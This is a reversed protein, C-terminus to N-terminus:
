DGSGFGLFDLFVNRRRKRKKREDDDNAPGANAASTAAQGLGALGATAGAAPAEARTGAYGGGVAINDAGVVRAAAITINGASSIGAEGANVEGRPAFLSVASGADLTAIGSGSFSGSTDLVLNGDADLRLVPAPAGSVTKAGRGADVNGDSAWLLIDGRGLTFVRSQNVEFNDRVAAFIDGGAVTVVGLEGAKKVVAGPVVEGANIGGTPALLAIGAAQGTRVQSTPMLIDGSDTRGGDGRFRTPFLADLSVYALSNAADFAEGAALASANGASQLDRQLVRSLWPLQRELPLAAFLAAADAPTAAIQTSRALYAVLGVTNDRVALEAASLTAPPAGAATLLEAQRGAFALQEAAPRAAHASALVVGVAREQLPATLSALTAEANGADLTAALVARLWVALEVRGRVRSERLLALAVAPQGAVPTALVRQVDAATAPDALLAPAGAVISRQAKAPTMGLALTTRLYNALMPTWAEGLLSAVARLKEATPLADFAAAASVSQSDETGKLWAYLVGPRDLLGIAGTVAYGGAVATAIDSGDLRVGAALTLQAGGEPLLTSNRQNGIANVGASAGLDIDRGALLVLDGPGAITIGNLGGGSRAASIDRGARLLSLESVAAPERGDLRQPQQQVFVNGQGDLVIDRGATLRLPRASDLSGTLLLDGDRASILVPERSSGDLQRTGGVDVSTAALLQQEVVAIASDAAPARAAGGALVALNGLTVDAAALVQLRGAAGPQQVVGSGLTVSGQPAAILAVGPLSNGLQAWSGDRLENSSNIQGLAQSYVSAATSGMRLSADADLGALVIAGSLNTLSPATQGASRLRSLMLEGRAQLDVATNQYIVEPALAGSAQDIGASGIRGGAAVQLAAGGGFLSGGLVDRGAAVDLVGGGYVQTSGTSGAGALPMWGSTAAAANLDVVDLGARVSVGGGGFSAVGGSFRDYRSWWLAAPPNSGRWWWDTVLYPNVADPAAGLVNGGAQLTVTGGGQLYPSMYGLDNFAPVFEFALSSFLLDPAGAPLTTVPLGTTYVASLAGALVVDGQAHLGIRGATNRVIVPLTPDSAKGVTLTGGTAAPQLTAGADAAALDAGAVLRISGASGAAPTWLRPDASTDGFPAEFGSSISGSVQLNGAARLVLSAGGAAAPGTAGGEAAPLAWPVSVELARSSRVEVGPRLVFATGGAVAGAASSGAPALSALLAVATDNRTYAAVDAAITATGLVTFDNTPPPPPNPTSDGGDRIEDVGDYRTVAEIDIRGVGQLTAALPTVRVGTGDESRGARLELTGEHAAATPALNLRAGRELTITGAVSNLSIRSDGDARTATLVAGPRLTLNQGADLEIVANGGSAKISGDILLSGADASLRVTEAQLSAGGPLLLEGSRARVEVLGGFNKGGAGLTGALTALDTATGSDISLEGGRGGTASGRLTGAVVVAGAPAQLTLRGASGTGAGSVDLTAGREVNLSGGASALLAQGAPLNIDVGDIRQTSGRTSTLSGAALRLDGEARLQLAGGPLEILGGQLLTRGQLSLAGGVPAVGLAPVASGAPAAGLVLDGDARLSGSSLAAAEFRAARLTADGALQLIGTGSARLAGTSELTVSATGAVAVAGAGLTLTGAGDKGGTASLTLHGQGPLAAASTTTGSSNQLTFQRASVRAEAPANLLPSDLTLRGLQASGLTAGAGFDISSDSRLAVESAAALVTALDGSIRLAQSDAASSGPVQIRSAGLAVAGARSVLVGDGFLNSASADLTLRGGAADLRAGDGVRLDGTRVSTGPAGRSVSAGLDSSLRLVAADGDVRLAGTVGSDGAAAPRASLTAGGELTVGSTGALVLDAAQLAPQGGTVTVQTARVDLTGAASGPVAGLVLTTAGLANLAEAGLTLAGAVPSSGVVIKGAAVYALGGRAGPTDLDFRVSGDLTAGTATLVLAGADAPLRPVSEGNRLPERSYFDSASTLRIESSRRAVASPTLRWNSPMTALPTSGLTGSTAGVTVSGDARALAVGPALSAMSGAAEPRVLFAGPLLAYRAPLLTYTGAPLPAGTGITIQRGLAAASGALGNDYSALGTQGPVIAFAGDSGDFVDRSGGPGPVFLSSFSDGGGSMDLLAGAAVDVQAADLTVAKAPLRPGSANSDPVLLGAGSVSTESGPALTLRDSALLTIRGLPARLVGGQEITAARLTLEGGVSLPRAASADGALMDIRHGSADLTYRAGTAPAVQAAGITVDAATRLSGTRDQSGLLQLTGATSLTLEGVGQTVLAGDLQLGGTAQLLLQGSGGEPLPPPRSENQSAVPGRTNAWQLVASSLQVSAGPALALAPTDIALTLAPALVVGDEFRIREQSVLAVNAAGSQGILAASIGAQGSYPNDSRLSAATLGASGTAPDATVQLERLAPLTLGSANDAVSNLGISLSGGAAQASGSRGAIAGGELAISGELVIDRNGRIDVKGGASAVATLATVSGGATLRTVSLTDASGGALIRAGQQMLLTTPVAASANLTVTGGNYLTGLRQGGSGPQLLTSGAVDILSGAGLWLLHPTLFDGGDASSRTLRLSVEGGSARLTGDVELSTAASLQLKAGPRLDIVAGSGVTLAGEPRSGGLGSSALSLNVARPPALTPVGLVALPAVASGSAAFQLSRDATWTAVTPALRLGTAVDLASRGDLTFSAFGGQDFFASSLTLDAPPAAPDFPADDLRVTGTALSLSGGGALSYGALAGGLALRPQSGDALPVNSGAELKIAGAATGTITGSVAGTVGVLAGASVDILSGEGLTLNRRAALSVSGGVTAARGRPGDIAENALRGTVDITVGGAVGLDGGLARGVVSGAHAIIDADILVQGFRSLLQVSGTDPLTLSTGAVLQVDADSAVSLRGIGNGQQWNLRSTAPLVGLLSGALGGTLGGDAVNWFAEGLTDFGSGILLSDRLVAGAYRNSGFPGVHTAAGLNLSGLAPLAEAGSLQRAGPTAAAAIHGDLLMKPAVVTLSGAGRGDVYGAASVTPSSSGYVPLAGWRDFLTAANDADIARSYVVDKPADNVSYSRGDAGILRTPRVSAETLTVSGGSVDIRSAEHSVVAGEARLNVRGGEALREEATRQLGARYNSLDGLISSTGRVDVTVKNRLLLGDKQLPADKLDNSGLLETTVFYRGASASATTTGAVDIVAGAGILIRATDDLADFRSGTVADARYDPAAQARVNVSAGPAQVTSGSELLVTHGALEIRSTVFSATDSSTAAPKGAAPTDASIQLLSGSGLVLSGSETARKYIDSGAPQDGRTGGQALLLISGNQSVSTTASIRGSQNVAMGVLTANGRPTSISGGALNAVSGHQAAVMGDAGTGPATGVEVLLGRLSPVDPNVESAYLAESTPLKLMVAGGGGLVVQGDPSSISGANEVRKAFLFIRGGSASTLTAGEDVRVFNRSDIFNEPAGEYKFAFDGGLVNGNLSALFSADSLNLTSAVLSGVDVKAGRGLIVGNPNILFLQGNSKLSGYIQSASAGSIRNLASSNASPMRFEVGANAGINFSDWQYIARPTSQKVLLQNAAPKSFVAQGATFRPNTPLANAAPPPPKPLGQALSHLPWLAALAIALPTLGPLRRSTPDAHARTTM